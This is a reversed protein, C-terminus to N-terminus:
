CGMPFRASPDSDWNEPDWQLTVGDAVEGEMNSFRTEPKVRRVPINVSCAIAHTVHQIPM